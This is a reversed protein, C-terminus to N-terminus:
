RIDNPKLTLLRNMTPLKVKVLINITSSDVKVIRDVIGEKNDPIESPHINTSVPDITVKHGRYIVRGTDLQLYLLDKIM